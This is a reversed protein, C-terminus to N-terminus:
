APNEVSAIFVWEKGPRDPADRVDLVQYGCQELSSSIADKERFRLTSDSSIVEGDSEFVYTWRFHVLDSTAGLLECWGEVFGEGPVNLKQYTNERNWNLWAKQSPDRVEFVLHGNSTLAQRAGILTEVWSDDTLFVQAVNATMVAFDVKMAPLKKIDGHIWRIKDSNPKQKAIELSALAPELGIM